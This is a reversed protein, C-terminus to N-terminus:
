TTPTLYPDRDVRWSWCLARIADTADEHHAYFLAHPFQQAKAKEPPVGPPPVFSVRKRPILILQTLAFLDAFWRTSTDLKLLFCFRTHAYAAIWPPVDSYPPNIFTRWDASVDEAHALGDIGDEISFRNSSKVTSRANSCPDLDFTGIPETIWPPTCWSDRDPEVEIELAPDPAPDPALSLTPAMNAPTVDRDSDDRTESKGRVDAPQSPEGVDGEGDPKNRTKWAEIYRWATSDDLKARALWEGWGRARPGSAPWKARQKACLEGIQLKRLMATARAAAGLQEHRAGSADAQREEDRWVIVQEAAVDDVPAPAIIAAIDKM